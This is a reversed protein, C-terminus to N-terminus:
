GWRITVSTRWLDLLSADGDVRLASADCRNWLFLHLDSAAGQVTCDAAGATRETTVTDAVRVLWADATDDPRVLLVRPTDSALRGGRRTIFLSLLEDIGDAAVEAPFASIPGSASEADARHIGTEHCQRRAWFALPSPAALFSWCQLDPEATALADVLM